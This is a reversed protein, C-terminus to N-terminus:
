KAGGSLISWEGKKKKPKDEAETLIPVIEDDSESELEPVVKVDEDGRVGFDGAGGRKKDTPANADKTGDDAVGSDSAELTTRAKGQTRKTGRVSPGQDDSDSMLDVVDIEEGYTEAKKRKRSRKAGGGGGGGGTGSGTKAKKSAQGPRYDDDDDTDMDVFKHEKEKRKKAIGDSKKGQSKGKGRGTEKATIQARGKGKRNGNAKSGSAGSDANEDDVPELLQASLRSLEPSTPALQPPHPRPSTDLSPIDTPLEPLTSLPSSGDATGDSVKIALSHSM